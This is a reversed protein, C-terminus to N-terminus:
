INSELEILLIPLHENVIEWVEDADVGFYEHAIINRFGIINTWDIATFNEKATNSIKNSMEGIVLFNLLVADYSEKDNFLSEASSHDNTFLNIKKICDIINLICAKDKPLLNYM